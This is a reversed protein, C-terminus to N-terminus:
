PVSLSIAQFAKNLLSLLLALVSEFRSARLALGQFRGEHNVGHIMRCMHFVYVWVEDFMVPPLCVVAVYVWVVDIMVPPLCVVAAYRRENLAWHRLRQQGKRQGVFVM